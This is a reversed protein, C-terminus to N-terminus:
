PLVAQEPVDVLVPPAPEVGYAVDLLEVERRLYVRVHQMRAQHVGDPSDPVHPRVGGSGCLHAAGAREWRSLAAIVGFYGAGGGRLRRGPAGPARGPAS